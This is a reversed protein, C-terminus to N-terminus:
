SILGRRLAIAIAQLRTKAGLRQLTKGVHTRVTEPAIFLEAGIEEYSRGEALLRLVDRERQTLEPLHHQVILEGAITPDVYTEGAAITELARRLDELPSTKLIVARVGADLADNLLGRDHHGTYLAFATQPATRAAQRAIEIGRLGPMHGDVLAVAPLLQEIKLLADKGDTTTALVTWGWDSILDSISRLVAPHDDAVVCTRTELLKM